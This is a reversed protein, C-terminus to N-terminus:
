LIETDTTPYNSPHKTATKAKLAPGTHMCDSLISSIIQITSIV